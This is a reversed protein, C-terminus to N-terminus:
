LCVYPMGSSPVTFKQIQIESIMPGHDLNIITCALNQEGTEPTESPRRLAGDRKCLRTPIKFTEHSLGRSSYGGDSRFNRRCKAHDSGKPMEQGESDTVETM